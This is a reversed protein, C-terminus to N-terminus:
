MVWDILLNLLTLLISGVVAPLFGKVKIGSVFAATLQLMLANIVLLFLGLTIVTIPFALFSIVPKIVANCIGLVIAGFFAAGFNNIEVGKVFNAVILLFISTLLLHVLIALM